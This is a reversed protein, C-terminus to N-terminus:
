DGGSSWSRLRAIARSTQKTVTGLPRDTIRAIEQFSHEDFFRLGILVREQEPLRAVLELLHENEIWADVEDTTSETETSDLSVKVALKRSRAARIAQRRTITILWSAFKEDSKLTKIRRFAIMLSEQAIDEALQLDRICALAAAVVSREYRRCLTEFAEVDGQKALRVLKVDSLM